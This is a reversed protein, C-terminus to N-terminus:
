PTKGRGPPTRLGDIFANAIDGAGSALPSLPHLAHRLEKIYGATFVASIVALLAAGMGVALFAIDADLGHRVLLLYAAYFLGALVIGALIGTIMALMILVALKPLFRQAFLADLMTKGIMTIGLYDGARPM